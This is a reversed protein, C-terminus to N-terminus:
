VRDGWWWILAGVWTLILLTISYVYHEVGLTYM